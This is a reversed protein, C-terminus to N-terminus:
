NLSAIFIPHVLSNRYPSTLLKKKSENESVKEEERVIKQTKAARSENDAQQLKYTLM